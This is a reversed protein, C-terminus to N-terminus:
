GFLFTLPLRSPLAGCFTPFHRSRMERSQRSPRNRSYTLPLAPSQIPYIFTATVPTMNLLLRPRGYCVAAATPNPSLAEPSFSLSLSLCSFSSYFSPYCTASLVIQKGASPCVDRWCCCCGNKESGIEEISDGARVVCRM